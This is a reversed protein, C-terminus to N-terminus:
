QAMTARLLGSQGRSIVQKLMRLLCQRCEQHEPTGAGAARLARVEDQLRANEEELAYQIDEVPEYDELVDAAVPQKDVVPYGSHGYRWYLM